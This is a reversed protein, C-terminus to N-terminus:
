DIQVCWQSEKSTNVFHYTKRPMQRLYTDLNSRLNSSTQKKIHKNNYVVLEYRCRVLAITKKERLM